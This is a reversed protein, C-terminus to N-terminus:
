GAANSVRCKYQYGNRAETAKVSLTASKAGTLTSKKWTGTSSTRYYWQYTLDEGTAKVTFKVTTDPAATQSKPATTIVPKLIVYLTAPRTYITGKSNSVRCKYQYGDRAATAKVTLTDTKCGTLTSKAWTGTSSTRYYWQYSLNPGHADVMFEVTEGESETVHVTQTGIWPNADPTIAITPSYSTGFSNSVKCRYHGLIGDGGTVVLCDTTVGDYKDATNTLNKWGDAEYIQWRYKLNPGAADVVATGTEDYRLTLNDPGYLIVPAIDLQVNNDVQLFIEDEDLVYCTSGAGPDVEGEKVARCLDPCGGLRLRSLSTDPCALVKLEPCHAIELEELPNNGCYLKKLSSCFRLDLDTLQNGDCDLTELASADELNLNTLACDYCYLSELGPCAGAFLVDLSHHYSVNLETLPNNMVYLEELAGNADLELSTMQNGNCSLMQLDVNASVDLETLQCNDCRLFRLAGNASVNLAGLPNNNCYLSGLLGNQSLNLANLSNEECSLYTLKPNRTVDLSTLGCEYCTLSDLMKNSKVDLSGLPNNQCSLFRLSSFHEVGKLSTVGKGSVDITEAEAIESASLTGNGDTDFHTSVYSRFTGDPFNAANITVDAAEARPLAVTPAVTLCLLLALFLSIMRKM